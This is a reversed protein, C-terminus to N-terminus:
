PIGALIPPRLHFLRTLIFSPIGALIPPRLYSFDCDHKISIALLVVMKSAVRRKEFLDKSFDIPEPIFAPQGIPMIREIFPKGSAPYGDFENDLDEPCYSLTSRRTCAQGPRYQQQLEGHDHSPM